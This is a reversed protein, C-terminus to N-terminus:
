QHLERPPSRPADDDRDEDIGRLKRRMLIKRAIGAAEVAVEGRESPGRDIQDPRRRDIFHIRGAKRQAEHGFPGRLDAQFVRKARM